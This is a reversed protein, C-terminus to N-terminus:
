VHARGIEQAVPCLRGGRPAQAKAGVDVERLARPFVLKGGEDKGGACPEDEATNGQADIGDLEIKESRSELFFDLGGQACGGGEQLGAPLRGM